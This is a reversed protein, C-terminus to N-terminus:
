QLSCRAVIYVSKNVTNQKQQGEKKKPTPYGADNFRIFDLTTGANLTCLPRHSDKFTIMGWDMRVEGRSVADSCYISYSNTTVDM